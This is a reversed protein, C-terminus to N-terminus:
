LPRRTWSFLKRAGPSVRLRLWESATEGQVVVRRVNPARTTVGHEPSGASLPRDALYSHTDGQLVLVEGRFARARTAIRRVIADFGSVDEGPALRKLWMNAQMAIVVGRARDRRAVAFSRDIWALNAKQRKDFEATRLAKHQPAEPAVPTVRTDVFWPVLDNNSGIVHITSFVTRARSWMVNEVYRSFAADRSQPRVRLAPQGGLARDPRPYFVKRLSELRETPVFAGFQSRHCDTWDNDGPTFVFPDKFTDYLDRRSAYFANRCPQGSKMDGLHVVTRVARDANIARVLKPFTALQADDYPTDGIVALTLTDHASSAAGAAPPWLILGLFVTLMTSRRM